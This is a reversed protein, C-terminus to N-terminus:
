LNCIPCIPNKPIGDKKSSGRGRTEVRQFTIGNQRLNIPETYLVEIGVDRTVYVKNSPAIKLFPNDFKDLCLLKRQCFLDTKSGHQTLVLTVYHSTYHCYFDAFYINSYINFMWEAKVFVRIEGFYSFPTPNSNQDVKASFFLGDINSNIVSAPDGNKDKIYPKM